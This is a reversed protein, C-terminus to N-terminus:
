LNSWVNPELSFSFCGLGWQSASFDPSSWSGLALRDSSFNDVSGDLIRTVRSLRHKLYLPRSPTCVPMAAVVCSCLAEAAMVGRIGGSSEGLLKAVENRESDTMEVKLLEGPTRGDGTQKKVDAGAAVLERIAGVRGWRCALHLPTRALPLRLSCHEENPSVVDM